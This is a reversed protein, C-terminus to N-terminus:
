DPIIIEEAFRGNGKFNLWHPHNGEVFEFDVEDEEGFYIKRQNLIPSYTKACPSLMGAWWSFSSNGRFLTRAFYLRLFDPLWDFIVDPVKNSGVPYSWGARKNGPKGVGWKGTWDDTTWEMKDPDYGFKKFAEIYSEKSVVSYGQHNNKNYNANSIDDRRLHAIDYTGQIDELRKYVDLNKVEDNFELWELIKKRSMDKFIHPGNVCLSDFFVNTNGYQSPVDPNMYTIKKGVKKCYEGVAKARYSLNDFPQKSQNIQLRLQDDEIIKYGTDNFLYSGEWESPIYFDLDHMEAYNRGFVYSGVRNGFRGNWHVLMIVDKQKKPSVTKKANESTVKMTKIDKRSYSDKLDNIIDFEYSAHVGKVSMWHPHNGSVYEFDVEKGPSYEHLWPSFVEADSLWAAWVSFSSNSRFIKRAFVLKLFDPLWSIRRGSIIPPEGKWDWGISKEDSVWEVKDRDVGFKEFADHYSKKSVMSHGGVYNKRSIDTRRFHAIDYTGKKSELEKYIETNRVEDTFEFYRRIESLKVKRFFWDVDSVLGIFATNQKGYTKKFFPDIFEISDDHQKNYDEIKKKNKDFIDRRQISGGGYIFGFDSFEKSVNPAPNNFLFTGEWDSPVYFKYGFKDEIHKGYLYSHCRNGFRGTWKACIVKNTEL